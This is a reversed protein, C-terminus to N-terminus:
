RSGGVARRWAALAAAGLVSRDTAPADRPLLRLEARPLAASWRRAVAAPHMPDDRLGVVGAPVGVAALEGETPAPSTAAARLVGPLADGHRPWGAALEDVVWGGSAMRLRDLVAPVGDRELEDATQATLGAAPGPRGLWGPLVFLAGDLDSRGAAFFAAV